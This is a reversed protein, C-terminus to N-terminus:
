LMRHVSQSLNMGVREPVAYVVGFMEDDLEKLDWVDGVGVPEQVVSGVWSEEGEVLKDLGVGRLALGELAEVEVGSHAETATRGVLVGESEEEGGGGGKGRRQRAHHEMGM